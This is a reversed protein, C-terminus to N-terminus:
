VAYLYMRMRIRHYIHNTQQIWFSIIGNRHIKISINSFSLFVRSDSLRPLSLTFSVFPQCFLHPPQFQWSFLWNSYCVIHLADFWESTEKERECVCIHVCMFFITLSQCFDCILYLWKFLENATDYLSVTSVCWWCWSICVHTYIHTLMFIFFFCIICFVSLDDVISRASLQFTYVSFVYMSLANLPVHWMAFLAVCVCEGSCKGEVM